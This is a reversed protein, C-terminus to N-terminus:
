DYFPLIIVIKQREDTNEYIPPKNSFPVLCIYDHMPKEFIRDPVNLVLSSSRTAAPIKLNVHVLAGPFHLRRM